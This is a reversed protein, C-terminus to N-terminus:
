VSGDYISLRVSRMLFPFGWYVFISICKVLNMRRMLSIAYDRSIDLHGGNEVLLARNEAEVIGRAAAFVITTNVVGESACLNKVFMKVKDDLNEGLMFPRGRVKTPMEKIESVIRHEININITKRYEDRMSRITTESM